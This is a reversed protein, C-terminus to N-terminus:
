RLTRVHIVGGAHQGPWRLAAESPTLYRIVRVRELPINRMSQANGFEIDDLFVTVEPGRYPAITPMSRRRLYEPRLQLVAQYVDTVRSAVIEAATIVERSASYVPRTTSSAAACASTALGLVILSARQWM